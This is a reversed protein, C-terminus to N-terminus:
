DFMDAVVASDEIWLWMDTIIAEEDLEFSMQVELSDYPDYFYTGRTSFNMIMGVEAYLGKPKVQFEIKDISGPEGWGWWTVNVIQLYEYAGAYM